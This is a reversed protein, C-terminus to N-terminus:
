SPEGNRLSPRAVANSMDVRQLYVAVGAIVVKICPMGTRPQTGHEPIYNPPLGLLLMQTEEVTEVHVSFEGRCHHKVFKKKMGIIGDAFDYFFKQYENM